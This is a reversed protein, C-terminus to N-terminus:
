KFMKPIRCSYFVDNILEAIEYTNKIELDSESIPCIFTGTCKTFLRHYGNSQRFLNKHSDVISEPLRTTDIELSIYDGMMYDYEAKEITKELLTLASENGTWQCYFFFIENEKTNKEMITIFEIQDSSAM